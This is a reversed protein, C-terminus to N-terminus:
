DTDSPKGAHRLENNFFRAEDDSLNLTLLSTRRVCCEVGDKRILILCITGAHKIEYQEGNVELTRPNIKIIIM